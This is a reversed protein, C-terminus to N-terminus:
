SKKLSQPIPDQKTGMHGQAFVRESPKANLGFDEDGLPIEKISDDRAVSRKSFSHAESQRSFSRHM